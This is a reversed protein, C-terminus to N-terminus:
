GWRRCGACLGKWPYRRTLLYGRCCRRRAALGSRCATRLTAKRIAPLWFIRRRCALGWSAIRMTSAAYVSAPTITAAAGGIFTLPALEGRRRASNALIKHTLAKAGGYNDSIVSPSLSGPLDLNVTPVGAQQCLASIKDPNTAGTAVVWDVQWSLMAKVAEIELEPRRRTCTIIPLLGRERAMEEFREAISGFYRNDYKPIIMGIVHSKKSRLMSAQRNIAYGQEEAIRTVKEALKASIRRKKWNGNLIASVASASVGSLEALDYITIKKM